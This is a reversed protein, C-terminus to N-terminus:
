RQPFRIAPNARLAAAAEASLTKLDELRLNPGAYRGLEKATAESVTSLGDFSLSGEHRALAAAAEPSLTTL